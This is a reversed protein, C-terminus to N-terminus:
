NTCGRSDSTDQTETIQTQTQAACDYFGRMLLVHYTSQLIALATHGSHTDGRPFHNRLLLLARSWCALAEDWDLQSHAIRALGIASRLRTLHDKSYDTARFIKAADEFHGKRMCAEALSLQLRMKQKSDLHVNDAYADQEKKITIMAENPRDLETLVDALECVTQWQLILASQSSVAQQLCPLAEAFYGQLRLVMGLKSYVQGLVHRELLSPRLPDLPRWTNLVVRATDLQEKCIHNQAHSVTVHGLEANWQCSGSDPARSLATRARDLNEFAEELEGKGRLRTSRRRAAWAQLLHNGLSNALHYGQDIAHDKRRGPLESANLLAICIEKQGMPELRDFSEHKTFEDFTYELIPKLLSGSSKFSYHSLNQKLEALSQKAPLSLEVNGRLNYTLAFSIDRLRQVFKGGNESFTIEDVDAIAQFYGGGHSGLHM